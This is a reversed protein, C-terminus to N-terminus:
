RGASRAPSIGHLRVHLNVEVRSIVGGHVLLNEFVRHCHVTVCLYLEALNQVIFSLVSRRACRVASSMRVAASSNSGLIGVLICM